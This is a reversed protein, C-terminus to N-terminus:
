GKKNAKDIVEQMTKRIVEAQTVGLKNCANKFDDVFTTQFSCSLKKINNKAYKKQAVYKDQEM